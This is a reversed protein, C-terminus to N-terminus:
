PAAALLARLAQPDSLKPMVETQVWNFGLAQPCYTKSWDKQWNQQFDAIQRNKTPLPYHHAFWNFLSVGDAGEEYCKLAEKCIEDRHRRRAPEGDALQGPGDGHAWAPTYSITPYVGIDTGKALAVFEKTRPLGMPEFLTPCIYDVLHEAVWTKVDLGLSKCSSNTPEGYYSGPFEEKVFKGELMPGVRVGLLMRRRGKRRATEDLMKRAERVLRTLVVHNKEPNSVMHFWRRFDFEIGDIDYKSAVEGFIKMRHEYVAPIAWDLCGTGPIHYEPHARGFDSIMWTNGYLDEANMRYSAVVPVGRTRCTEITLALPDTGAEYLKKLVDIQAAYSFQDEKPWTRKCLETWYKTRDTDVKTPYLVGEPFGVDQAFVGIKGDLIRELYRRYVDPTMSQKAVGIKWIINNSDNNFITGLKKASPGSQEASGAPLLMPPSILLALSLLTRRYM